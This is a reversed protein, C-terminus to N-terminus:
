SFEIAEFRKVTLVFRKIARITMNFGRPFARRRAPM